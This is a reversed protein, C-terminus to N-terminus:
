GVFERLTRQARDERLRLVHLTLEDLDKFRLNVIKEFGWGMCKLASLTCAAAVARVWDGTQLYAALLAGCWVDGAGTTDKPTPTLGSLAPILQLKGEEVIIAGIQGLTVALRRAKLTQIAHILSGAGTLTLAEHDNVVFLDVRSALRRLVRRYEPVELYDPSTHMSVWVRPSQARIREIFREVKPPRMPALHILNGERIWPQPLDSVKIAAGAGVEVGVYRARFAETYSITFKSTPMNVVKIKSGPFNSHLFSIHKFDRGVATVLKVNEHITKAGLAAYLAAGGLQVREGWVNRIKDVSVHGVFILLSGGPM